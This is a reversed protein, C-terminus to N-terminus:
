PFLPFIKRLFPFWKELPLSFLFTQPFLFFTWPLCLCWEAFRFRTRFLIPFMRFSVPFHPSLNALLPFLPFMRRSFIPLYLHLPLLNIVRRGRFRPLSKM